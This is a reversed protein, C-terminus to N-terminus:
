NLYQVFRTIIHNTTDQSFGETTYNTKIGRKKSDLSAVSKYKFNNLTLHIQGVM